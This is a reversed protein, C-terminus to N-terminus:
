GFCDSARVFLFRERRQKCFLCGVFLLIICHLPIKEAGRGRRYRRQKNQLVHVGGRLFFFLNLKKISCLYNNQDAVNQAFYTEM